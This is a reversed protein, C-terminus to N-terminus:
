KEKKPSPKHSRWLFPDPLPEFSDEPVIVGGFAIFLSVAAELGREKGERAKSGHESSMTLQPFALSPLTKKRSFPTPITRLRWVLSGM